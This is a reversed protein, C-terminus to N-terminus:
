RVTPPTFVTVGPAEDKYVEVDVLCSMASPGQALRSTGEDRTLVNPNGHLCSVGSTDDSPPNYWAGTNLQLVGSRIDESLVATCLCSGRPSYVRVLAGDQIGRSVADEPNILVPERGNIKFIRSYRGHDLQSHLKNAPQNSILHLRYDNAPRGLWEKPENWFPFGPAEQYGFAAVRESFIEIKGSPTKLPYTEPDDRFQKLLVQPERPKSNEFWGRLKFEDFEPLEIGVSKAKDRTEAYLAQLWAEEDRNGTFADEVGMARALLRFIEYDARSEGVPEIAKEMYVLFPDRSSSAIDNRELPTASPLVIDAHRALSNWCWEHVVITDPKQWAQRM